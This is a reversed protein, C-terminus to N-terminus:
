FIQVFLGKEVEYLFEVIFYLDIFYIKFFGIFSESFTDAQKINKSKFHQLDVRQFLEEDIKGILFQLLQIHGVDEFLFLVLKKLFSEFFEGMIDAELVVFGDNVKEFEVGETKKLAQATTHKHSEAIPQHLHTSSHM